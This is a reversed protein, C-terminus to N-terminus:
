ADFGTNPARPTGGGTPKRRNAPDWEGNLILRLHPKLDRLAARMSSLEASTFGQATRIAFNGGTDVIVIGYQWIAEAVKLGAGSYGRSYIDFGHDLSLTGGYPFPGTHWGDPPNNASADRTTAPLQIATSLLPSYPKPYSPVNHSPLVTQLVHGIPGSRRVDDPVLLGFIASVGAALHGVRQSEGIAIGHGMGWLLQTNGPATPKAFHPRYSGALMPASPTAVFGSQARCERFEYVKGTDEEIFAVTSDNGTTGSNFTVSPPFPIDFAPINRLKNELDPNANITVRPSSSNVIHWVIGYPSGINFDGWVTPTNAWAITAAHGAGAFSAGSGIPRHHGSDAIFPNNPDFAGPGPTIPAARNSSTLILGM